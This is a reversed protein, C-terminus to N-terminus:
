LKEWLIQGILGIVYFQNMVESSSLELAKKPAIGVAHVIYIVFKM